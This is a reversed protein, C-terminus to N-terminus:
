QAARASEAAAAAAEIEDSRKSWVLPAGLAISSYTGLIAGVTFAFAFGRIAEGGFAYLIVTTLLTLGSTIMTRSLTQNISDNVIHGSAYKLKGRNERIRDLIIVKDNLSFGAMTLIAAVMNLNISFPLLGASRAFANTSAHEFLYQAIAIAGLMGIVDHFVPLTAALAWRPTGYRVWIYVILLAISVLVSAVANRKFTAAVAPSFAEVNAVEAPQALAARTLQWEKTAVEKQFLAMDDFANIEPDAVLLVAAQVADPNGALIRIDHKRELTSAFDGSRRTRDLRANLDAFSIRPTIEDLLIAVGGNFERIDADGTARGVVESLKPSLVPHVPAADVNEVSSGSFALVAETQLVDSFGKHIADLVVRADTALSKLRFRASTVGDPGPNVPIVEAEAFKDLQDSQGGTALKKLRDQVQQRTLTTPRVNPSQSAAHALELTVQTGGRFETDYFAEGRNLVFFISVAMYAVSLTLFLPRLRLWNVKPELMRQLAPVVMPLMAAKSWLNTEVLLGFVVRSIVLAAFLTALVGVALTVAFGRIEQTGLQYLVACIILHSVNADIIAPLARRFGVRTATRMDHGNKLEERMREYILVNADVAQGFTLVVGAIGPMTFAAHQLAMMGLILVGACALALVAILGCSFYYVVMFASVLVFAILGTSLGKALNDAGLDPGVSEISIPESSLKAKLSGASLVRVVYDVEQTTFDGTIQGSKSIAERLNPATYVQDDFLVSMINGVNGHTLRGLLNAGRADMEFHIAPKGLQDVGQSASAVTWDGEAPTLRLDPTDWCLMYYSQDGPYYEVIHGRGNFYAGPNKELRDFDEAHNVWAGIDNLKFWRADRARAVRPGRERLEQRLRAEEPYSGPRPAIRFTLVGAGRLIRVLDQPDDLSKRRASYTEHLKLIADIEGTAGPHAKKLSEIAKDRDSPFVVVQGKEDPLERTRTSMSLVRRVAQSSIASESLKIKAADYDIEAQAVGAALAEKAAADPAAAYEARKAKLADFKSAAEDFARRRAGDAGAASAIQASRQDAPLALLDDINGVSAYHRDLDRLADEVKQKLAKVEATPLPMTIEIRDEGVPTIRLDLQGMPDVRDKIVDITKSIIQAKNEEAGLQVQYLLTVGGALDKGLRLKEQFPLMAKGMILLVVISLFLRQYLSRNM